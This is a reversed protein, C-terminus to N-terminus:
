LFLCHAPNPWSSNQASGQKKSSPSRLTPMLQSVSSCWYGQSTCAWSRAGLTSGRDATDCSSSSLAQPTNAPLQGCSRSQVPRPREWQATHSSRLLFPPPMTDPPLTIFQKRKEQRTGGEGRALFWLFTDKYHGCPSVGRSVHGRQGRRKVGMGTVYMLCTLEQWSM